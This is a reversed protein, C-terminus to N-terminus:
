KFLGHIFPGQTVSMSMTMVRPVTVFKEILIKIEALTSITQTCLLKAVNLGPKSGRLRQALSGM